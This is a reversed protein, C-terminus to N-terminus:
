RGPIPFEPGGEEGNGEFDPREIRYRRLEMGFYVKDDVFHLGCKELVRISPLNDKHVLGIISELGAAEFGFQVAAWAAETAYGKGRYARGLLYGVETEDTDPLYELGNWGALQGEELTMVAWHGYGYKEWYALQHSIYREAKELTPPTSPPFYKFISEEQMIELLRPADELKWPRLCLHVTNFSPINLHIM